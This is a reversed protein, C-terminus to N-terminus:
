AARKLGLWLLCRDKLTPKGPCALYIERNAEMLLLVAQVQSDGLNFTGGEYMYEGTLYDIAHGLIELARGSQPSIRRRRQECAVSADQGVTGHIVVTSSAAM